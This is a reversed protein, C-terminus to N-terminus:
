LRCLLFDCGHWFGCADRSFPRFGDPRATHADWQPDGRGNKKKSRDLEREETGYAKIIRMGRAVELIHSGWDGTKSMMKNFSNKTRRGFFRMSLFVLPVTLAVFSALRWNIIFMSTFIGLLTIGNRMLTIPTAGIVVNVQQAENLLSTLIQGSHRSSVVEYDSYILNEFLDYQVKATMRQVVYARLFNGVFTFIARTALLSFVALSIAILPVASEPDFLIDISYQIFVPLAGTSMGVIVNALIAGLMIKWYPLLWLRMARRVMKFNDEQAKGINKKNEKKKNKQRFIKGIIKAFLGNKVAFKRSVSAHAVSAHPRSTRSVSKRSIRKSASNATKVLSIM